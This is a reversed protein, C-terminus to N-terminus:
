SYYGSVLSVAAGAGVNRVYRTDGRLVMELGAFWAGTVVASSANSPDLDLMSHTLSDGMVAGGMVAGDMLNRMIDFGEGTALRVGAMAVAYVGAGTLAEGFMTM